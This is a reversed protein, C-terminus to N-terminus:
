AKASSAWKPMCYRVTRTWGTKLVNQQSLSPKIGSDKYQKGTWDSIPIEFRAQINRKM